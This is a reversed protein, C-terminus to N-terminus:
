QTSVRWVGAETNASYLIHHDPDYEMMWGAVKMSGPSPMTVWKTPIARRPPSTVKRGSGARTSSAKVELWVSRSPRAPSPRSHSGTM